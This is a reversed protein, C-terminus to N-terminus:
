SIRKMLRLLLPDMDGSGRGVDFQRDQRLLTQRTLEASIWLLPEPPFHPEHADVFCLETFESPKDLVKDRLIKGGTHSPAVGHGNYGLGYHLRGKLLTGFVPLFNVTIGVPGGWHHSMRIDHFQPFTEHFTRVLDAMVRDNRDYSPRIRRGAHIVGDGGGWLVRGDATRRYYHVYNRKDEIGQRQGWGVEAWREEPIPETLVVYTYLPVVTNKFWPTNTAWASTALVVQGARVTGNPTTLRLGSGSETIDLVDTTEYLQAGMGEVIDALGAALRAPNLVGCHTEHLAGLYTPSDVEARVEAASLRRFGDLGLADAAALDSEVRDLQGRNTAVVLLGGKTWECDIGHREITDGIEDVSTAVARHAARAADDGHNRRLHALSMDLLTMAFGGNRGSAGYAIEEREVIAVRLSPQAELLHYATWLGTFGGGVIAVDVEVEGTVQPHPSREITELWHIGSGYLDRM